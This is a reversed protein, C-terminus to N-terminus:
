GNADGGRSINEPKSNPKVAPVKKSDSDEFTTILPAGMRVLQGERGGAIIPAMPIDNIRAIQQPDLPELDLYKESLRQVRDARNLHSWEARLVRLSHEEVELENHLERVANEAASTNYKLKYLGFSVSITIALAAINLVRIM